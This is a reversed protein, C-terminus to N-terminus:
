QNLLLPLIKAVKDLTEQYEEEANSDVVIGGGAWCYINGKECLLTRICISSDMDNQFGLYGISGCYISRKHPELQDIIQMARIKPAGTISGGPFAGRLLDLPTKNDALNGTVTSVLHHVAAFSQISFLEPVDVSGAACSKSLDNRLLDVIMLNEARDKEATQLAHKLKEDQRPDTSRARTGKIPKTEVKANKVALFREPSISLIVCDSLRIFASFPAKNAERLHLYALWEDGQYSAEFRQALNVQYCDGARLYDHILAIKDVYEAKSMNAQWQGTLAFSKKALKQTALKEFLQKNPTVSSSTQLTNGDHEFICLYFRKEKHDKIISWNYIGVAMDPSQYQEKLVDSFNEFRRGLDYGFYGMAGVLFPLHQYEQDPAPLGFHYQEVLAQLLAMPDQDSYTTLNRAVHHIQSNNGRTVITAVPDAVFIDFRGDDNPSNSSDLLMTWENQCFHQVLEVIDCEPAIDLPCIHLRQNTNTSIM